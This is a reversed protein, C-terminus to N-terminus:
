STSEPTLITESTPRSHIVRSLLVAFMAGLVPAICYLWLSTLKGSVLAPAISRVPNMSAGCIPGAFIAELAIVSGIIVGALEQKAVSGNVIGLIVFMLIFTLIFELVFSQLESGSPSTAGLSIHEPFLLRLTASALLGGLLQSVFYPLVQRAPFQGAVWFAVTVAPNIHCGSVDGIAYIMALVILGFTLGVGVHTVTGGSTDNIIIAGTGAFVLCYTGVFEALFKNM